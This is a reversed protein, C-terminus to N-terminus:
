SYILTSINDPALIENAVELLQEASIGEIKKYMEELTDVQNFYLFSKGMSLMLNNNNEGSIALQGFLQRQARHLQRTGLKKSRLLHFEKEIQHMARNIHQKDTGFYVSFVGSDTYPTYNSETHYVFALRERLSMNLRTNLGPGGILNDLLTLVTKKDEFLNYASTGIMCHAQHTDMHRTRSGPNYHTPVSSIAPAATTQLHGIHKELYKVLQQLSYDGVSSVVMKETHYNREIFARIHGATFQKLLEPKGLINKGLPQNDFILEEFEDFILEAPDDKYSNIEELIVEKEKALEKSPFTAHFAIDNILEIARELDQKLFSTHLCTEEKTTYANLEGGVDDMRSLIHYAKRKKTGKFFAHEIFHALGHEHPLEHRSGAQIVLGIHAALANTHHHVVRLGNSLTTHEFNTM